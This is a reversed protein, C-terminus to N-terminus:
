WTNRAPANPSSRGSARPTRSPRLTSRWYSTNRWPFARLRWPGSTSASSPIFAGTSSCGSDDSRAVVEDAPRPRSAGRREGPVRPAPEAALAVNNGFPLMGAASGALATAGTGLFRLHDRRSMKDPRM